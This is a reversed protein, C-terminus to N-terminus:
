WGKMTERSFLRESNKIQFGRMAAQAQTDGGDGTGINITGKAVGELFRIASNYRNLYTKDREKEDIGIRSMLNYVAIDKSFKNLVRPAPSMPVDYRRALYGDIEADADAVAEEVYPTLRRKREELDEIYEDGLLADYASEKVADMVEDATCYAM